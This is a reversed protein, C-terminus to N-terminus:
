SDDATVENFVGEKKKLVYIDSDCLVDDIM